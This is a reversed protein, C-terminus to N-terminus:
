RAKISVRVPIPMRWGHPEAKLDSQERIYGYESEIFERAARRTHFLVPFGDKHILHTRAGDVKNKSRWLASWLLKEANASM